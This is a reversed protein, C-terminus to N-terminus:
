KQLHLATMCAITTVKIILDLKLLGKHGSYNISIVLVRVLEIRQMVKQIKPWDNHQSGDGFHDAYVLSPGRRVLSSTNMPQYACFIAVLLRQVKQQM